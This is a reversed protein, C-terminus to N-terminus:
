NPLWLGNTFATVMLVIVRTVECSSRVVGCLEMMRVVSNLESNSGKRITWALFLIKCM